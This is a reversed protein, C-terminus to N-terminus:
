ENVVKWVQDFIESQYLSLEKRMLQSFEDDDNDIDVVQHATSFDVPYTNYYQNHWCIIEYASNIKDLWERAMSELLAPVDINQDIVKSYDAQVEKLIHAPLQNLQETCIIEPWAPDKIAQYHLLRSVNKQIQLDVFRKHGHLIWERRLSAQLNSKIFTIAQGPFVGAIQQSNM